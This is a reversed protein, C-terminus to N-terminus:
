RSYIKSKDIKVSEYRYYDKKLTEYDIDNDTFGFRDMFLLISNKIDNCHMLQFYMSQRFVSRIYGKMFDNFNIVDEQSMTNGFRGSYDKSILFTISNNTMVRQRYRYIKKRYKLLSILHQGIFDSNSLIIKKSGYHKELYKKVISDVPITLERTM